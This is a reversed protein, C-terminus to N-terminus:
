LWNLEKARKILKKIIKGIGDPNYGANELEESCDKEIEKKKRSLFWELNDWYITKRTDMIKMPTICVAIWDKDITNNILLAELKVIYDETTLELTRSETIRDKM